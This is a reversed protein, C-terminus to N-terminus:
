LGGHLYLHVMLGALVAGAMMNTVHALTPRHLRALQAQVRPAFRAAFVGVLALVIVVAVHAGVFALLALAGRGDNGAIMPHLMALMMPGMVAGMLLPKMRLHSKV